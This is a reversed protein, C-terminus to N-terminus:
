HVAPRMRDVIAVVKQQFRDCWLGRPTNALLDDRDLILRFATAVLVQESLDSFRCGILVIQYGQVRVICSHTGIFRHAGKCSELLDDIGKIQM